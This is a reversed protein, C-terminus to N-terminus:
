HICTNIKEMIPEYVNTRANIVDAMKLVFVVPLYGMRTRLKHTQGKGSTITNQHDVTGVVSFGLQSSLSAERATLASQPLFRWVEM